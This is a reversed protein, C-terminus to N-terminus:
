TPQTPRADPRENTPNPEPNPRLCGAIRDRDETCGGGVFGVQQAGHQMAQQLQQAAPHHSVTVPAGGHGVVGPLTAKTSQCEFQSYGCNGAQTTHPQFPSRTARDTQHNQHQTSASRDISRDISRPLCLCTNKQPRQRKNQSGVVGWVRGWGVRVGGLLYRTTTAPRTPGAAAARRSRSYPPQPHM